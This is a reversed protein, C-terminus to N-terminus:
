QRVWQITEISMHKSNLHMKKQYRQIIPADPFGMSPNQNPFGNRVDIDFVHFHTDIIKLDM